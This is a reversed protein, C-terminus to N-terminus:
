YNIIVVKDVEWLFFHLTIKALLNSLKYKYRSPEAYVAAPNPRNSMISDALISGQFLFTTGIGLPVAYRVLQPAAM